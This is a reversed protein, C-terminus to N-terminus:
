ILDSTGPVYLYGFLRLGGDSTMFWMSLCGDIKDVVLENIIQCASNDWGQTCVIKELLSPRVILAGIMGFEYGPHADVFYGIDFEALSEM